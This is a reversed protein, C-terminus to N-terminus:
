KDLSRRRAEKTASLSPPPVPFPTFPNSSLEPFTLAPIEPTDQRLTFVQEDQLKRITILFPVLKQKYKTLNQGGFVVPNTECSPTKCILSFM